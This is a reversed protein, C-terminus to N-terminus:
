AAGHCGQATAHDLLHLETVQGGPRNIDVDRPNGIEGAVVPPARLNQPALFDTGVQEMEDLLLLDGPAEVILADSCQPEEVLDGETPLTDQYADNAGLLGLPEGDHETKLFHGPEKPGDNTDLVAGDEHGGVGCAQPDRLHNGQTDAVDVALSHDKAHKLALPAFIAIHHERWSQQGQKAFVPLDGARSVPEEGSLNWALGDSDPRDMPDTHLGSPGRTQIFVNGDVGKAMAERRVQEFGAGIDPRNLHQESMAVDLRRCNVGVDRRDGQLGGPTGEVLKVPEGPFRM